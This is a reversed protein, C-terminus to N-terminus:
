RGVIMTLRGRDIDVTLDQLVPGESGYAFAGNKVSISTVALSSRRPENSFGNVKGSSGNAVVTGFERSEEFDARQLFRQIREMCALGSIFLAWFQLVMLMPATFFKLIALSTFVRQADFKQDNPRPLLGYVVFTALTSLPFM